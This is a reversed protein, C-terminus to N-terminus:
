KVLSSYVMGTAFMVNLAPEDICKKEVMLLLTEMEPIKILPQKAQGRLMNFATLYGQMWSGYLYEMNKNASRRVQIYEACSQLGAGVLEQDKGYSLVAHSIIFGFIIKKLHNNHNLKM